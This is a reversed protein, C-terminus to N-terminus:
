TKQKGDDMKKRKAKAGGVKGREERIHRQLESADEMPFEDAELVKEREGEPLVFVYRGRKEADLEKWNRVAGRFDASLDGRFARALISQTM